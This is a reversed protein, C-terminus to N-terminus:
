PECIPANRLEVLLGRTQFVVEDEAEKRGKAHGIHLEPLATLFELFKRSSEMNPSDMGPNRYRLEGTPLETWSRVFPKSKTYGEFTMRLNLNPYRPPFLDKDTPHFPPEFAVSEVGGFSVFWNMEHKGKVDSCEVTFRPAASTAGDRMPLSLLLKVYHIGSGPDAGELRLLGAEGLVPKAAPLEQAGIVSVATVTALLIGTVAGACSNRM